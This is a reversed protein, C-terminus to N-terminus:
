SPVGSCARIASVGRIRNIRLWTHLSLAPSWDPYWYSCAIPMGRFLLVKGELTGRYAIRAADPCDNRFRQEESFNRRSRFETQTIGPRVGVTVGSEELEALLPDFVVAFHKVPAICPSIRFQHYGCRYWM